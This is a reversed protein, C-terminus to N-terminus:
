RAIVLPPNNENRELNTELKPQGVQKGLGLIAALESKMAEPSCRQRIYNQATRQIAYWLTENEYLQVVKNIFDEDEKGILTEEGDRLNLGSAAISSAVTPIGYSMAEVLKLSVGAMFRIPAVFVRCKEYYEELSEVFGTIIVRESALNRISEPPQSGVVFLRCEPLKQLIKPFLNKVFYRVADTNPPHGSIFGGVFLLDRRGSFLTTPEHLAHPHGWVVVNDHSKGRLIIEREAESVTIVVDAQNMIDLENRLMRRKQRDSLSRGEVEAKLFERLCFLAEADYIVRANPFCKRLLSLYKAGNHPRSIIVADYHGARNRLLAEPVFSNGYFVEVGSQQLEQTTPEHATSNGVPIFTVIFESKCLFEILKHARPFGSGLYSAPIQDDIVLIRRGSRRDRAKLINGYAYQQSVVGAWKQVLKQQNAEMLAKAREFSRSGYEYHYVTVQPQYIVKYGLERISLCLDSDEYYAPLYREDFGNVKRFLEARVLVCAASCYDVERRYCYEPKLPDDDRGYGTASGDQWIISGAEQLRGDPRVLKAGVAGCNPIQEITSVLGSLWRPTVIVDNNLFLTYRGRAFRAGKNCTRIFDLNQENKVVHINRIKKLLEPTLDKSCDDGIIVQYPLDTHFLISKLCQYLYEAKNFTPIVISVEPTEFSPFTLNKTADALFSELEAKWSEVLSGRSAFQKRTGVSIVDTYQAMAAGGLHSGWGNSAQVDKIIKSVLGRFGLSKFDYIARAGMEQFSKRVRIVPEGWVARAFDASAGKPVLTSLTLEIDQNAFRRFSARFKRWHRYRTFRTPHTFISRRLQRGNSRSSARIEFEVSGPNRGWVDPMLATFGSFVARSPVTLRYSVSSSPYMFLGAKVIGDITM